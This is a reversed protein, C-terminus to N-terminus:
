LKIQKELLSYEAGGMTKRKQIVFRGVPAGSYQRLLRGLSRKPEKGVLRAELIETGTLCNIIQELNVWHAGLTAFWYEVFQEMDSGDQDADKLFDRANAMWHHLGNQNLIGSVTESYSEFGGFRFKGAVAGADIWNQVLGLLCALISRRSQSVHQWLNPYHFNSRREPNPTSPQLRIPVCRKAIETSCEVNNGTGVLTLNNPLSVIRSAGLLRSQYVSATLLSALAPSDLRHPLNDLHVITEDQMLLGTIRKDREDDTGTIQLAPTKRGTLTGGLVDEALKSKGTRPIPATILHLPRNGRCAPAIIPTLLLGIYNHRDANDFFPFDVVLDSLTDHIVEINQEPALDALEEPEDYYIGSQYGPGILRWSPDFVPYNVILNIDPIRDHSEAGALIIGGMDKTCHRFKLSSEGTNRNMVWQRLKVSEDCLLRARDTSLQTWKRAGPAGFIEGPIRARRYISNNPLKEIVNQAFDFVGVEIYEDQDTYHVGPVLVDYDTEPDDTQSADCDPSNAQPVDVVRPQAIGARLGSNITARSSLEDLGVQLAAEILEREVTEADLLGAGVFQGLSFAASNLTDNRTGEPANLVAGVEGLVAARVYAPVRRATRKSFSRSPKQKPAALADVIWQPLPALAHDLPSRTFEYAINTEPHVSGPFVVQGGDGRVDIHEGLKGASNRLPKSYAYYLHKGRGTRVEVTEPLENPVEAGPDLDIVVVGSVAGTRLGINGQHAEIVALSLRDEKQWGNRCPIKGNLPTFAWGLSRYCYRIASLDIM